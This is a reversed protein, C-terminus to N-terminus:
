ISETPYVANVDISLGSELGDIGVLIVNMKDLLRNASSAFNLSKNKLLLRM